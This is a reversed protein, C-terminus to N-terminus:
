SVTACPAPRLSPLPIRPANGEVRRRRGFGWFLQPLRRRLAPGCHGRSCRPRRLLASVRNTSRGPEPAALRRGPDVGWAPGQERSGSSCRPRAEAVRSDVEDDDEEDEAEQAEDEELETLAEAPAQLLAALLPPVPAPLPPM